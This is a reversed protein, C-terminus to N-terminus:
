VEGVEALPRRHRVRAGIIRGGDNQGGFLVFWGEFAFRLLIRCVARHETQHKLIRQRRKAHFALHPMGEIAFRLRRHLLHQHM